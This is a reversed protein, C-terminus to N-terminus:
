RLSERVPVPPLLPEPEDPSLEDEPPEDEPPEDEPPEDPAPEPLPEPSFDELEDDELVDAVDPDPDPEPEPEPVPEDPPFADPVDPEELPEAAQGRGERAGPRAPLGRCRSGGPTTTWLRPGLGACRLPPTM